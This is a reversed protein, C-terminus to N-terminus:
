FNLNSAKVDFFKLFFRSKPVSLKSELITAIASSLKKNVDGSLGCYICNVMLQQSSTGRIFNSCLLSPNKSSKPSKLPHKLSSAESLITSTDVGDLNVNTSINLCPMKETSQKWRARTRKGACFVRRWILFFSFVAVVSTSNHM